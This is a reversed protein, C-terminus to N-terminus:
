HHHGTPKRAKLEVDGETKSTTKRIPESVTEKVEYAQTGKPQQYWGPDQYDDPKQNERVKVVTFMGGMEINGYPGNGSMM